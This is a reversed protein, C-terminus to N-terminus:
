PVNGIHVQTDKPNHAFLPNDMAIGSKRYLPNDLVQTPPGGAAATISTHRPEVQEIREDIRWDRRFPSNMDVNMYMMGEEHDATRLGLQKADHLFQRFPKFVNEQTVHKLGSWAARDRSFMHLGMRRGDAADEPAAAAAATPAGPRPEAPRSPAKAADKPTHQLLVQNSSDMVSEVSSPKMMWDHMEFGNSQFFEILDNQHLDLLQLFRRLFLVQPNLLSIAISVPVESPRPISCLLKIAAGASDTQPDTVAMLAAPQHRAFPTNPLPVKPQKWGFSLVRRHEIASQLDHVSAHHIHGTLALGPVTYTSETALPKLKLHTCLLTISLLESASTYDRKLGPAEEVIVKLQAGMINFQLDLNPINRDVRKSIRTPAESAPPRPTPVRRRRSSAAAICQVLDLISAMSHTPVHSTLHCLTVHLKSFVTPVMVTNIGLGSYGAGGPIAGGGAGDGGGGGGGGTKGAGTPSAGAPALSTSPVGVSPVTAATRVAKYGSKMSFEIKISPETFPLRSVRTQQGNSRTYGLHACCEVFSLQLKEELARRDPSIQHRRRLSSNDVGGRQFSRRRHLSRTPGAASPKPWGERSPRSPRPPPPDSALPAEHLRMCASPAPDSVVGQEQGGMAETSARIQALMDVMASGRRAGRLQPQAPPAVPRPGGDISARLFSGAQKFTPMQPMFDRFSGMKTLLTPKPGDVPSNDHINHLRSQMQARSRRYQQALTPAGQSVGGATERLAAAVGLHRSKMRSQTHPTIHFDRCMQSYFSYPHPELDSLLDHGWTCAVARTHLPALLYAFMLDDAASAAKLRTRASNAGWITVDRIFLQQNTIHMAVSNLRAFVDNGVAKIGARLSTINLGLLPTIKLGWRLVPDWEIVDQQVSTSARLSSIVWPSPSPGHRNPSSLETLTENGPM